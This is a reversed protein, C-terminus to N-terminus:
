KRAIPHPPGPYCRDPMDRGGPCWDEEALTTRSDPVDPGGPCSDEEALMTHPDPVDPGGASPDKGATTILVKPAYGPHRSHSPGRQANDLCTRRFSLSPGRGHPSLHGRQFPTQPVRYVEQSRSSSRTQDLAARRRKSIPWATVM